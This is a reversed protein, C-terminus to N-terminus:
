ALPAATWAAAADAFGDAQIAYAVIKITANAYAELTEDGIEDALKFSEFVKVDGTSGDVTTNYYYVNTTGELAVWGNAAMQAAITNTPDEIAAIGNEVKVFLYSEESSQSVHITPDKTYEHGPMLKYENGKVPDEGEIPDGNEDVKSEDLDIDIKGVTFTNIVEDQSTLFAVTGLVSAAVILVVSVVALLVKMTTKM